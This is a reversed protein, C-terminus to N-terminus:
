GARTMFTSHNGEVFYKLGHMVCRLVAGCREKVHKEKTEGSTNNYLYGQYGTRLSNKCREGSFFLCGAVGDRISGDGTERGKV